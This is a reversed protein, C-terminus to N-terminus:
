KLNFELRQRGIQTVPSGDVLKPKFKWRLIAREAVEEFVGVPQAEIVQTNEVSGDPRIAFEVVVYGEIKRRMARRPYRPEIRVLPIVDQQQAPLSIGEISPAGMLRISSPAVVPSLQIVPSDLVLPTNVSVEMAPPQPPLQPPAPKKPRQRKKPPPEVSKELRIFSITDLSEILPPREHQSSIMSSMFYFLLLSVGAGLLAAIPLRVLAM